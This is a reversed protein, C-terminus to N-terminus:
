PQWRTASIGLLEVQSLVGNFIIQNAGTSNITIATSGTNVLSATSTSTNYITKCVGAAPASLTWTTIPGSSSGLSTYGYNSIATGTTASISGITAQRTRGPGNAYVITADAGTLPSSSTSSITSESEQFAYISSMPQSRVFDHSRLCRWQGKRKQIGAYIGVPYSPTGFRWGSGIPYFGDPTRQRLRGG